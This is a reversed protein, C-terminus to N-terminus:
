CLANHHQLLVHLLQAMVLVRDGPLNCCVTLHLRRSSTVSCTPASPVLDSFVKPAERFTEPVQTASFDGQSLHQPCGLERTPAASTRGKSEGGGAEWGSTGPSAASGAAAAQSRKETVNCCPLVRRQALRTRTNRTSSLCFACRASIPNPQPLSSPFHRLM